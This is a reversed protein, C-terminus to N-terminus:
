LYKYKATRKDGQKQLVKKEAAGKLDRSATAPSIEKFHWLYDQRSFYANGIIVKYIEIRDGGSISPQQVSLLQELAEDLASLMFEIFKTSHGSQDAIRLAKYYDSQRNRIISEVPLFAFVPNYQRLLVTQWLRGMRGNGDAFPHIFELEYHFVCSKILVPDEDKKLYDFLDNLLPRVMKAAPAVHALKTGKVVGVASTRIKGASSVLGKMLIAHAKLFSPLSVANLNEMQDYVVIANKVERIDKEPATVRKNELLATVQKITLTNGEIQLSSQITKIRNLKRLEARPYQLHAAKIAGLKEAISSILALIDSTITYPPKM